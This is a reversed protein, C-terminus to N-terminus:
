LMNKVISDINKARAEYTFQKSGIQSDAAIASELAQAMSENDGPSYTHIQELDFAEISDVSSAVVQLGSVLYEFLKIPSTYKKASPHDPKLPVIGVDAVALYDFVERHPVRGVMEVTGPSVELQELFENLESIREEDGGVILLKRQDWELGAFTEIMLEIDNKWEDLSGAYIITTTEESIGYRSALSTPYETPIYAENAANPIVADVTVGMSELDNKVGESQTIVADAHSLRRREEDRSMAGKGSYSQHAEYLLPPTPDFPLKTLFKLFSIDRTFIADSNRSKVLAYSYYLVQNAWKRDFPTPTSLVNSNVLMNNKAACQEIDGATFIEIRNGLDTLANTTEIIQVGSAQDADYDTYYIYSIDRGAM